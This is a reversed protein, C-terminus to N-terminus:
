IKTYIKEYADADINQRQEQVLAPDHIDKLLIM